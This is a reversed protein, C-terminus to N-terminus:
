AASGPGAGIQPTPMALRQGPQILDPNPGIVQRNVAHLDGVYAAVVGPDTEAGLRALAVSWLTDGLRVQVSEEDLSAVGARSVPAPTPEQGAPAAVGVRPVAVREPLRLGALVSAPGGPPETASLAVAPALTSALGVGCLALMARRVVPPVGRRLRTRGRSADLVVITAVSWLWALVVVAVLASAWTLLDEFAAGGLRGERVAGLGEAAAPVLGAGLAAASLSMGVWALLCRVRPVIMGLNM